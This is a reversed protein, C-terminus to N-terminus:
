RLRFVQERGALAAFLFVRDFPADDDPDLVEGLEEYDAVYSRAHKAAEGFDFDPTEVPTCYAFALGDYHIVLDLEDLGLDTRTTEYKEFVHGLLDLLPEMMERDSYAGGRFPFTIWEAVPSGQDGWPKFHTRPYLQAAVLYRTLAPRGPFAHYSHGQPSDWSGDNPWNAQAEALLALLENRFALADNDPLRIASPRLWVFAIRGGTNSPQQGLAARIADQRAEEVKAKAVQDENAWTKLEVGIRRGSVTESLIDPPDDDPQEWGGLPEGAFNPETAVFAAFITAERERKEQSSTM